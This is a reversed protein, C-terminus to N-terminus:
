AGLASASNNLFLMYRVMAVILAIAAVVAVGGAITGLIPILALLDCVVSIVTCILYMKWISKGKEALEASGVNSLLGSTTTIVTNLIVLNIVSSVVSLLSSIIAGVFPIWSVLASVVAIVINIIVYTVAKNYGEDDEGAKKLGMIYFVFGVIALICGVLPGILPIIMILAAIISIIQSTFIKKVGVAANPYQSM